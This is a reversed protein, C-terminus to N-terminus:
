IYRTHTHLLPCYSLHHILYRPHKPDCVVVIGQIGSYTSVDCEVPQPTNKTKSNHTQVSVPVTSKLRYGGGPKVADPHKNLDTAM